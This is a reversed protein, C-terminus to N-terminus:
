CPCILSLPKTKNDSKIKEKYTNFDTMLSNSASAASNDKFALEYIGSYPTYNADINIYAANISIDTNLFEIKFYKQADSFSKYEFLTQSKGNMVFGKSVKSCLALQYNIGDVSSDQGDSVSLFAMSIDDNLKYVIYGGAETAILGGQSKVNHSAYANTGNSYDQSVGARRTSTSLASAPLNFVSLVLVLALLSAIINKIKM